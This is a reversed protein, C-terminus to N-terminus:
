CTSFNPCVEPISFRGRMATLISHINNARLTNDDKASHLDGIWLGPLIQDMHHYEEDMTSPQPPSHLHTPRVGKLAVTISRVLDDITNIDVILTM